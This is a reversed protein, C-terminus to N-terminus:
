LNPASERIEILSSQLTLEVVGKVNLGWGCAEMKESKKMSQLIIKERDLLIFLSPQKKRGMWPGAASEEGTM